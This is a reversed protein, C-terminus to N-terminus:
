INLKQKKLDIQLPKVGNEPRPSAKGEDRSEQSEPSATGGNGETEVELFATGRDDSIM